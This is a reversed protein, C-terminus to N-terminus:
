QIRPKLRLPKFIVNLFLIIGTLKHKYGSIRKESSFTKLLFEEYDLLVNTKTVNPYLYTISTYGPKSCNVSKM